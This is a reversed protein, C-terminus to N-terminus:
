ECFSGGKEIEKISWVCMMSDFEYVAEFSLTYEESDYEENVYFLDEELTNYIQKFAKMYDNTRTQYDESLEAMAEELTGYYTNNVIISKISNDSTSTMNETRLVVFAM